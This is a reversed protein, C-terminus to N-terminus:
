HMRIKGRVAFEISDGLVMKQRGTISYSILMSKNYVDRFEMTLTRSSEYLSNQERYFAEMKRLEFPADLYYLKFYEVPLNKTNIFAKVKLNSKTDKLGEEVAFSGTYTPKNIVKLQSFEDLEKMWGSSDLSNLIKTVIKHNLQTERTLEAHTHSLLTIQARMLSDVNFYRNESEPKKVCSSLLTAVFILVAIGNVCPRCGISQKKSNPKHDTKCCM